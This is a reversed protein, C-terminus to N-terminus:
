RTLQPRLRPPPPLDHRFAETPLVETRVVRGQKSVEYAMGFEIGFTTGYRVRPAPQKPIRRVGGDAYKYDGDTIRTRFHIRLREDRTIWTVYMVDQKERPGTAKRDQIAKQRAAEMGDHIAKDRAKLYEDYRRHLDSIVEATRIPYDKSGDLAKVDTAVFSDGPPSGEGSNVQVRVLAYPAKIGSVAVGPTNAMNLAPYTRKEGKDGVPVQLNTIQPKGRTPLYVWRYSGGDSSFCYADAPGSRGELSLVPRAENVLVGVATGPLAVFKRHPIFGTRDKVTEQLAAAASYAAATLIAATAWLSSSRM